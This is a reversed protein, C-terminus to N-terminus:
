YGKDPYQQHSGSQDLLRQFKRCCLRLVHLDQYVVQRTARILHTSSLEVKHQAYHLQDFVDSQPESSRPNSDRREVKGRKLMYSASVAIKLKSYVKLRYHLYTDLIQAILEAPLTCAKCAHPRQNSGLM